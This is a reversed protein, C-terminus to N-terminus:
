LKAKPKLTDLWEDLISNVAETQEVMIWHGSEQIHKMTLNTCHQPMDKAMRPRIAADKGATVMLAPHDIQRSLGAEKKPPHLDILVYRPLFCGVVWGGLEEDFNVRRTRYYNLGGHFGRRTYQDVYYDHEQRTALISHKPEPNRYHPFIPFSRFWPITDGKRSTRHIIRFILDPDSDLEKVAEDTAFYAQYAFSPYVKLIEEIEHLVHSPPAYATCFSAVAIVREPYWQTMRWVIMGGWDHGIFIARPIELLDMLEKIDTSINKWSCKTRLRAHRSCYSPLGKPRPVQDPLALRVLALLAPPTLNLFTRLTFFSCFHPFYRVDPFGHCLIVVGNVDRGEDVYDYLTWFGFERLNVGNVFSLKHTFSQPDLPDMAKVFAPLSHPTSVLRYPLQRDRSLDRSQSRG